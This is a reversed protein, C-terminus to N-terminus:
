TAALFLLLQLFEQGDKSQNFELESGKHGEEKTDDSKGDELSVNEALDGKYGSSETGDLFEKFGLGFGTSPRFGSMLLMM